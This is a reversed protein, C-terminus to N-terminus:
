QLKTAQLLSSGALSQLIRDTLEGFAYIHLYETKSNCIKELEWSTILPLVSLCFSCGLRM